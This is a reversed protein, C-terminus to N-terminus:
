GRSRRVTKRSPKKAPLSEAFRVSQDLWMQLASMTRLAPLAVYVFGKMPRGTFDMPRVHRNLLAAAYDELSMRAVLDDNLVGCCMKGDLLFAVSGFMKKESIGKKGALLARVRQALKDDYAM